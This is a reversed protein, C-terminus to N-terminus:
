WCTPKKLKDVTISAREVIKLAGDIVFAMGVFTIELDKVGMARMDAMVEAPRKGPLESENCIMGHNNFCAM